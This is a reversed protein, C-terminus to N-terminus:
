IFDMLFIVHIIMDDYSESYGTFRLSKGYQSTWFYPISQFPRLEKSNLHLVINEGVLRGQDQAVNWHEIRVMDGSLHYPYRAIDGVAFIGSTNPIALTSEVSIGWDKDLKIGSSVLYSTEPFVGVGLVVFDAELKQGSELLVHGVLQSQSSKSLFSTVSNKM